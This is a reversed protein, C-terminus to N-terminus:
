AFALGLPVAPEAPPLILLRGHLGDVLRIDAVRSGLRRIPALEWLFFGWPMGTIRAVWPSRSTQIGRAM